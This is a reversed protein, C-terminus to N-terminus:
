QCAGPAIVSRVTGRLYRLLPSLLARPANPAHPAAEGRNGRMGRMCICRGKQPTQAETVTRLERVPVHDPAPGATAQGRPDGQDDVQRGQGHQRAPRTGEHREPAPAQGRGAPYRGARGVATGRRLVRRPGPLHRRRLGLRVAQRGLRVARSRDRHRGPDPPRRGLHHSGEAGAPIGRCPRGEALYRAQADGLEILAKWVRTRLVAHQDATIAGMKEAYVLWQDWGLFLSAVNEPTRLHHSAKRAADRLEALRPRVRAECVEYWGALWRAYGAMALALVGTGAAGQVSTLRALDVTGRPLTSIMTRARLSATGPPLDEASCLLQARPPKDPRRSTDSRLRGRFSQNASGRILRDVTQTRRRSDFASLDPRYDDVVFVASAIAHADVELRNATSEWSGPLHKDDMGAGFHQQSLTCLATKLAGSQGAMWPACDPLLPLPARYTAGLLPVTVQDAALELIALSSKVADRVAAPDKPDPLEYAGISGTLEVTVDPDLGGAMIAGSATLYGWGGPLKRWGTHAYVHRVPIGKAASLERIAVSAHDRLGMGPRVIAEAGLHEDPWNMARFRDAPVAFAASRGNLRAEIEYEGRVEAGDDVHTDGTILATFNTLAVEETKTVNGGKDRTEKIWIIRDGSLKYSGARLPAPPKQDTM